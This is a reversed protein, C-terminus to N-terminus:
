PGPQATAVPAGDIMTKMATIPLLFLLLWCRVPGSGYAGNVVASTVVNVTNTEGQVSVASSSGSIALTKGTALTKVASGAASLAGLDAYITTPIVHLQLVTRLLATDSLLASLSTGLTSLM